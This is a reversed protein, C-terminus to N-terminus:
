DKLVDELMVLWSNRCITYPAWHKTVTINKHMSELSERYRDRQAEAKTLRAIVAHHTPIGEGNIMVEM